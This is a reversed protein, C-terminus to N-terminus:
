NKFYENHLKIDDESARIVIKKRELATSSIVESDLKKQDSDVMKLSTQGRTMKLYVSALLNADLLAGHYSRETNDVSFRACLADLTNRKGPFKKRSMTLTDIIKRQAVFTDSDKNLIDLERVLFGLDFPANHIILDSQDLYELLEEIIDSFKPKDKLMSLTIGHVNQAGEDISRDPNVYKHFSNNTITRNIIEICGIEIIRHGDNVDLGTTETDLVVLRNMKWPM